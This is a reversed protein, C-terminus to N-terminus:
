TVNGLTNPSVGCAQYGFADPGLCRAYTFRATYADNPEGPIGDADQDMPAGTRALLVQPGITMAYDGEDSQTKFFVRLTQSDVWAFGAIQPKLDAGGPGTFSSVDDAVSFSSPDM